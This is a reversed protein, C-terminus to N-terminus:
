RKLEPRRGGCTSPRGQLSQNPAVVASNLPLHMRSGTEWAQWIGDIKEWRSDDEISIEPMAPLGQASFYDKPPTEVFTITLLVCPGDEAVDRIQISNLRWGRSGEQMERVYTDQPVSQRYLPVRFKWTQGWKQEQELRYYEKVREGLADFKNPITVDAEAFAPLMATASLLALVIAIALARQM